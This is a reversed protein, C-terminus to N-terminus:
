LALARDLVQRVRHLHVLGRVHLLAVLADAFVLLLVLLVDIPILRQLKVQLTLFVELLCAQSAESLALAGQLLVAAARVDDVVACAGVM